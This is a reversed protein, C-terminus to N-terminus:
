DEYITSSSILCRCRCVGVKEDVHQWVSCAIAELAVVITEFGRYVCSRSRVILSPMRRVSLWADQYLINVFKDIVM